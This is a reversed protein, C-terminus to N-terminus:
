GLPDMQPISHPFLDIILLGNNSSKLIFVRSPPQKQHVRPGRWIKTSEPGGRYKPPSQAGETNQHVRPGRRIKTSEPGGETNQHVRPGRQIKTSEQGGGYNCVACVPPPFLSPILSTATTHATLLRTGLGM